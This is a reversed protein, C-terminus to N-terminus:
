TLGLADQLKEYLNQAQGWASLAKEFASEALYVEGLNTHCYAQGPLNGTREFLNLSREYCRLAESYQQQSYHAIGLNNYIQAEQELSGVDQCLSLAVQWHDRADQFRKQASFVNGLNIHAAILKDKRGSSELRELTKGFNQIADDYKNEYFSIVGLINLVTTEAPDEKPRSSMELVRLCHARAERYNGRALELSALNEEFERLEVKSEIFGAGELLAKEAEDMQGRQIHSVGLAILYRKKDASRLDPQELLSRYLDAAEEHQGVHAYGEALREFLDPKERDPALELAANLLRIQESFASDLRAREAARLYNSFARESEGARHFHFALEEPEDSLDEEKRGIQSHLGKKTEDLTGYVYQHFRAQSFRYLTGGAETSLIERKTLTTLSHDLRGPPYPCLHVLLSRSVTDRFCSVVNAVHREEPKLSSLVRVYTEQITKPLSLSGGPENFVRHVTALRDDAPIAAFQTLFERLIYPSSGVEERLRRPLDGPIRECQLMLSTLEQIGEDSLGKLMIMRADEAAPGLISRVAAETEGSLLLLVPCDALARTAYRLVAQGEEDLTEIDDICLAFSRMASAAQLFRVYADPINLSPSEQTSVDRGREKLDKVSLEPAITRFLSQFRNFLASGGETPALVDFFLQRLTQHVLQIASTRLASPKVYAFPIREVQAAHLLHELLTTKGMGTEGILAAVSLSPAPATDKDTIGLSMLLGYLTSWETERAVLKKVHPTGILELYVREHPTLARLAHAIELANGGRANPRKQILREVLDVLMQPADPRLSSVPPPPSILHDKLLQLVDEEQYPLRRTLVQYLTVGLAYLDIRHDFQQGAILEPALYPITGRLAGPRARDTTSVFGFDIIKALPLRAQDTATETILINSPKIDGHILGHSHIYFLAHGLQFFLQGVEQTSANETAEFLSPGEVYELTFYTDGVHEGSDSTAVQGYDFVRALNPHEMQRLTLFEHGLSKLDSAQLYRQDFLKIAVLAGDYFADSALYVSATAGGGLPKVITYRHNLLAM